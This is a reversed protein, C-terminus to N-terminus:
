KRYQFPEEVDCDWLFSTLQSLSKKDKLLQSRKYKCKKSKEQLFRLIVNDSINEQILNLRDVFFKNSSLIYDELMGLSLEKEGFSEGVDFRELVICTGNRDEGQVNQILNGYDDGDRTTCSYPSRDYVPFNMEENFPNVYVGNVNVMFVYADIPPVCSGNHSMSYYSVKGLRIKKSDIMIEQM